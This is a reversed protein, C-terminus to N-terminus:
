SKLKLKNVKTVIGKAGAEDAMTLLLRELVFAVDVDASFYISLFLEFTLYQQSLLNCNSTRLM